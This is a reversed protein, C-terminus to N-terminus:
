YQESIRKKKMGRGGEATVNESISNFQNKYDKLAESYCCCCREINPKAPKNCCNCFM